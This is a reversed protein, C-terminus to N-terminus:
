AQVGKLLACKSAQIRQLGVESIYEDIQGDVDPAQVNTKLKTDRNNMYRYKFCEMDLLFGWGAYDEVFLPNHILNIKGFATVYEGIQIGYTKALPKMQIQGRAFENIAQLVVGGCFFTKTDNGYTFGERLFTNFDPATLVGGQDQVYASNSEIFEQVGGTARMPHGNTGTSSKKEGFWFAREIDLAHQTGMKARLYPLDPGGYLKAQKETDSLAITTRFIQTYNSESSSRTTNVNRASANEENVNGIIYLGDGDAGAAAATSGFARTTLTVTTSSAYTVVVCEGTRANKVIDGTTFINGSSSGAGTVTATQGAASTYTGSVKAYRGGYYDEFWKFEPNGTPAKMMGSGTWAKGDWVKGVQTLLTVLPHKNPELLFIKDVADVVLRGEASSVATTRPAAAVTGVDHTPETYYPYAM